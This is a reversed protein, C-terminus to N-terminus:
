CCRRRLRQPTRAQPHQLEVHLEPHPLPTPPADSLNEGEAAPAPRFVYTFKGTRLLEGTAASTENLQGSAVIWAGGGNNRLAVGAGAGAAAADAMNDSPGKPSVVGCATQSADKVGIAQVALVQTSMHSGSKVLRELAKTLDLSSSIVVRPRGPALLDLCPAIHQSAGVIDGAAVAKSFSDLVGQATAALEAASAPKDEGVVAVAAGQEQEEEYVDDFDLDEEQETDFTLREDEEVDSSWIASLLQWAYLKKSDGNSSSPPPALATGNWLTIAKGVDALTGSHTFAVYNVRAVASTSTGSQGALYSTTGASGVVIDAVTLQLRLRCRAIRSVFSEQSSLSSLVRGPANPPLLAVAPAFIGAAEATANAALADSFNALLAQIQARAVEPSVGDGQLPAATWSAWLELPLRLAQAPALAACVLALLLVMPRAM